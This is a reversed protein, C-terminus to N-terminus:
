PCATTSSFLILALLHPRPRSPEKRSTGVFARPNRRSDQGKTSSLCAWARKSIPSRKIKLHPDLTGGILNRRSAGKGQRCGSDSGPQYSSINGGWKQVPSPYVVCTLPTDTPAKRSRISLSASFRRKQHPTPSFIPTSAIRQGGLERTYSGGGGGQGLEVGFRDRPKQGGFILRATSRPGFLKQHVGLQIPLSLHWAWSRNDECSLCCPTISEQKVRICAHRSARSGLADNFSCM